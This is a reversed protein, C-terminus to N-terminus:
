DLQFWENNETGETRLPENGRLRSPKRENVRLETLLVEEESGFSYLDCAGEYCKEPTVHWHTLGHVGNPFAWATERIRKQSCVHLQQLQKKVGNKFYLHIIRDCRGSLVGACSSLHDREIHSIRRSDLAFYAFFYINSAVASIWKSSGLHM